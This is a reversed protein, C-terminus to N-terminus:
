LALLAAFPGGTRSWRLGGDACALMPEITFVPGSTLRLAADPDACDAVTPTEHMARGIGLGTLERFLGFGHSTATSEREDREM